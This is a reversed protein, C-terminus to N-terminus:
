ELVYVKVKRRGWNYCEKSTELFVDIRNGKILGGTDVARAYGYGEVFLNTGLPIVKPDVAVGGVYPMVGSATADGTHTYATATMEIVRSGQLSVGRSTVQRGQSRNKGGFAIVEPVPERIVESGLDKQQVVEGNETSVEFKKLRIGEQGAQKIRTAGDALSQDAVRQVAFPIAEEETVVRTCVRIVEIEPIKGSKTVIKAEARDKEGLEVGADQLINELRPLTARAIVSTGDVQVKIPTDELKQVIIGEGKSYGVNYRVSKHEESGAPRVFFDQWMAACADMPRTLAGSIQLFFVLLAIFVGVKLAGWNRRNHGRKEMASLDLLEQKTV